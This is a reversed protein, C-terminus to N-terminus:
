TCIPKPLVWSRSRIRHKSCPTSTRVTTCWLSRSWTASRKIALCTAPPAAHHCKYFTVEQCPQDRHGQNKPEDPHCLLVFSRGLGLSGHALAQDFPDKHGDGNRHDRHHDPGDGHEHLAPGIPQVFALPMQSVLCLFLVEFHRWLVQDLTERPLGNFRAFGNLVRQLTGRFHRKAVQVGSPLGKEGVM